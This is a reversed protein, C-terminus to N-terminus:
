ALELVTRWDMVSADSPLDTSEIPTAALGGLRQRSDDHDDVMSLAQRFTRRARIPNRSAWLARGRLELVRLRLGGLSTTLSSLLEDARELYNGAFDPRGANLMLAGLAALAAARATTTGAAQHVNALRLLTEAVRESQESGHFARALATLSSVEIDHDGLAGALDAAHEYLTQAKASVWVDRAQVFVGAALTLLSLLGRPDGVAAAQGHEDLSTWWEPDDVEVAVEWAAAALIVADPRAETRTGARIAAVIERRHDRVWRVSHDHGRGRGLEGLHFRLYRDAIERDVITLDRPGGGSREGVETGASDFVLWTRAESVLADAGSATVQVWGDARLREVSRVVAAETVGVAAALQVPVVTSMDLVTAMARLVAVDVPDLATFRSVWLDSM